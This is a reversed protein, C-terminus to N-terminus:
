KCPFESHKQFQIDYNEKMGIKSYICFINELYMTTLYIVKVKSQNPFRNMINIKFRKLKLLNQYVSPLINPILKEFNM